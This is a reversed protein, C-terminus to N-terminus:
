LLQIGCLTSSFGPVMKYSVCLRRRMVFSDCCLSVFEYRCIEEDCLNGWLRSISSIDAWAEGYWVKSVLIDDCTCEGDLNVWWEGSFVVM